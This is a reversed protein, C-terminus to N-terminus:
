HNGNGEMGHYKYDIFRTLVPKRTGGIYVGGYSGGSQYLGHYSKPLFESKGNCLISKPNYTFRFVVKCGTKKLEKRNKTQHSINM